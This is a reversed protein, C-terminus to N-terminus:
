PHLDAAPAPSQVVGRELDVFGAALADLLAAPDLHARVAAGSLVRLPHPSPEAHSM